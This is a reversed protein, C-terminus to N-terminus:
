ESCIFLKSHCQLKLLIFNIVNKFAILPIKNNNFSLFMCQPLLFLLSRSSLFILLYIQLLLTLFPPQTNRCALMLFASTLLTSVHSLLCILFYCRTSEIFITVTPQASKRSIYHSSIIFEDKLITSLKVLSLLVKAESNNNACHTINIKKCAVYM